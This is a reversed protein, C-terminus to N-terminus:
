RILSDGMARSINEEIISNSSVPLRTNPAMPKTAAAAARSSHPSPPTSSGNLAAIFSIFHYGSSVRGSNTNM